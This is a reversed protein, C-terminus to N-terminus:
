AEIPHFSNLVEEVRRDNQCLSKRIYTKEHDAISSALLFQFFVGAPQPQALPDHKCSEPAIHRIQQTFNRNRHERGQALAFRADSSISNTPSRPIRASLSSLFM